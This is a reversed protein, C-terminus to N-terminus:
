DFGISIGFREACFSSDNVMAQCGRGCACGTGLARNDSLSLSLSLVIIDNGGALIFFSFRAYHM